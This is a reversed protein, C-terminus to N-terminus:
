NNDKITILRDETQFLIKSVQNTSPDYIFYFWGPQTAVPDATLFAIKAAKEENAPAEPTSEVYSICGALSVAHDITTGTYESTYIGAM